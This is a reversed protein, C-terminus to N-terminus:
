GVGGCVQLLTEHVALEYDYSYELPESRLISKALRELDETYRRHTAVSVDQWGAKFSGQPRRLVMELRDGPEIPQIVVSGDTGLLEFSRHPGSGAMTAASYVVGLGQPYELVAVTNDALGDQVTDNRLWSKVGAPRGWFNVICDLCHGGLEFMTGGKFRGWTPRREPQLDKNMTMRLMFVDGLWGEEAARYAFRVGPHYRWVYGMQLLLDRSRAMRVLEEFPELEDGPPKELHLHKGAEIVQRGWPIAEWASCEVVVLDVTSDGLLSDRDVWNLGQPLSEKQERAAQQDPECVAVVEYLPSTLLVQLKGKFHGHRTGLMGVRVRREKSLGTALAGAMTAGLFHRRKMRAM